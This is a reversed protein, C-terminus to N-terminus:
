CRASRKSCRSCPRTPRSPIHRSVRMPSASTPSGGTSTPWRRSHRGRRSSANACWASRTRSRGRRGARHRRARGLKKGAGGAPPEVLHHSMLQEFRRNFKREKGVYIADVATKMNDYIGRTPVGKFFQFTKEHADFVMEQAERLYSRVFPMRSHCLRVQAVKVKTAVGDLLVVEHSWDFQYAEGSAFSLPVLAAATREGERREWARGYRRVADYGGAYGVLRLEEYIRQFTLHERKPRKVNEALLQDLAEAHVSRRCHSSAVRTAGSRRAM